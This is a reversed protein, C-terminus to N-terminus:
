QARRRSRIIAAAFPLAGILLGGALVQYGRSRYCAPEPDPVFMHNGTSPCGLYAYIFSVAAIGVFVAMVWVVAGIVLWTRRTFRM